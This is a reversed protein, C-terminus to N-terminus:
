SRSSLLSLLGLLSLIAWVLHLYFLRTIGRATTEQWETLERLKRSLSQFEEQTM